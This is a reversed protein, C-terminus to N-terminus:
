NFFSKDSDVVHTNTTSYEEPKLVGEFMHSGNDQENDDKDDHLGKPKRVVLRVEHHPISAKCTDM